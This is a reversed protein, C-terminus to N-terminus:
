CGKMASSIWERLVKFSGSAVLELNKKQLATTLFSELYLKYGGQDDNAVYELIKHLDIGTNEWKVRDIVLFKNLDLKSIDTLGQLYRIMRGLRETCEPNGCKLWSGYVDKESMQYGCSCKPWMYDGNGPKFCEGAQPITSNALIVSIEAGPSIKKKL